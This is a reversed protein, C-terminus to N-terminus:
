RAPTPVAMCIPRHGTTDANSFTSCATQWSDASRQKNVLVLPGSFRVLSDRSLRLLATKTRSGERELLATKTKSGESENSFSHRFNRSLFFRFNRLDDQENSFSRRQLSKLFDNKLLSLPSVRMDITASVASGEEEVEEGM